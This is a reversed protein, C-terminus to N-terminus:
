EAAVLAPLEAGDQATAYSGFSGHSTSYQWWKKVSLNLIKVKGDAQPIISWYQGETPTTTWNFSNYTGKQYYYNGAADAITYGKGEEFTFTFANAASKATATPYGYTKGELTTAAGASVMIHYKGNAIVPAVGAVLSPMIGKATAYAGWSNYSTDYQMYKMMEVNQLKVTGDENAILIWIHGSAPLTASVNFNDYTGKMYYYRGSPDQITYGGEVATFLFASAGPASTATAEAVGLYGYGKDAPVPSAAVYAGANNAILWYFGDEIQLLSGDQEFTYSVSSSVQEDDENIMHSAFVVEGTRPGSPNALVNFKVIATDAPNQEIKTPEGPKYDMGAVSIWEKYEEPISPFLGSGKYAVKVELEGGEKAVVQSESAVKVLAKEVSVFIADVFEPTKGGYLVYTGQVTVVDGVGINFSAWDYKGDGNVTGYVYIEGTGDNLYWNGYQTNAIATCVGKVTYSKGEPGAIVEACTATVPALSGQRVRLYQTNDGAKIQLEIERGPFADASFTVVTEGAKGSMVDASLWSPASKEENITKDDNRVIVIPWNDDEVFAWDETANVTLRVSGGEVPISLYTSSLKINDFSGTMEQKQCGALALVATLVISFLYRLKMIIM